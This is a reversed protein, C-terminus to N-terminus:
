KYRSNRGKESSYQVHVEKICESRTIAWRVTYNFSSKGQVESGSSTLWIKISWWGVALDHSLQRCNPLVALLNRWKKVRGMGCLNMKGDLCLKHVTSLSTVKSHANMVLRHQTTTVSGGSEGDIWVSSSRSGDSGFVRPSVQRASWSMTQSSRMKFSGLFGGQWSEFM